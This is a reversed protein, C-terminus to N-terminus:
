LYGEKIRLETFPNDNGNNSSRQYNNREWTRVAARWDIMKNRGVKWGNATYYDIFKQPDVHNNREFCYGSVEELTPPVFIKGKGEKKEIEKNEKDIYKNTPQNEVSLFEVPLNEVGQKKVEQKEEMPNEYFNYEYEIRGSQTENPMKKIVELYGNAKLEGLASKISTECEKSISALGNVSYNWDNPLSLIVSLLGKAKLTLNRDRLHRNSMVTYNTTKNVRVIM